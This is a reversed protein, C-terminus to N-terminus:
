AQSAPAATAHEPQGKEALGLMALAWGNFLMDIGVFLGIVWLGSVPWQQWIMAGLLVDIVGSLLVWGWNQHRTATSAMIRFIGEIWLFMAILLTLTAAGALPNAVLVFGAVGYLIGTILDIFFGGWHAERFAHAAQLVGGVILLWGFIVVSVLTAAVSYSLAILGLIVMCIGLAFFWGWHGKVEEANFWRSGGMHVGTAM